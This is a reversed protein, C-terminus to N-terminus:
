LGWGKLCANVTTWYCNVTATTGIGPVNGRFPIPIPLAIRPAWRVSTTVNRPVEILWKGTGGVTAVPGDHEWKRGLAGM